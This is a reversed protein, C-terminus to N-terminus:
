GLMRSALHDRQLNFFAAAHHPSGDLDTPASGHTATRPQQFIVTMPHPRASRRGARVASPAPLGHPEVVPMEFGMMRWGDQEVDIPWLGSECAPVLHKRAGGGVIRFPVACEVIHDRSGAIRAIPKSTSYKGGMWGIPVVLRLPRLLANRPRVPRDRCGRHSRRHRPRGRRSGDRARCARRNERASRRPRPVRVPSRARNRWGISERGDRAAALM